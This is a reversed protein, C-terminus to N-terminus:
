GGGGMMGGIRGTSASDAHVDDPHRVSGSTDSSSPLTQSCATVACCITLLAILGLKRM